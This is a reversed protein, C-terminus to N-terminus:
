QIRFRRKQAMELEIRDKQWSLSPVFVPCASLFSVVTKSWSIM